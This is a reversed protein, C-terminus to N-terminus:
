TRLFSFLKRRAYRRCLTLFEDCCQRARETLLCLTGRSVVRASSIGNLIEEASTFSPLFNLGFQNAAGRVKANRTIVLTRAGMWAGLLTAHYRSSVLWAPRGWARCLEELTADTYAPVRLDLRAQRSPALQSWTLMESGPIARVEQPLWLMQRDPLADIVQHLTEVTFADSNEFHIVWGIANEERPPFRFSELYIHALDAGSSIKRAPVVSALADAASEDRAWLHSTASLIIQTQPYTLAHADNVGVGLFYMEKDYERCFKTEQVLHDLFWTGVESQFPSDGLGLWIDCQEIMERRISMEYPLWEIEPFRHQQSALNGLCCCTLRFTLHHRKLATIFGAVMLDDGINGTGFFHHGIHIHFPRTMAQHFNYQLAGGL